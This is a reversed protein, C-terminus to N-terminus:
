YCQLEGFPVELVVPAADGCYLWAKARSDFLTSRQWFLPSDMRYELTLLTVTDGPYIAQNSNPAAFRFFSIANTSREQVFCPHTEPAELVARPFALDVHYETIPRSANNTACVNLQYRHLESTILLDKRVLQISAGVALESDGDLRGQLAALAEAESKVKWERLLQVTFRDADNDVLKACNQCLWIGNEISRRSDSSLTAEYRPGGIAAATIHAAVGINVVKASDLRPGSTPQRCGPNSCRIGVRKALADCVAPSFDDRM